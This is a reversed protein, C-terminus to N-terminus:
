DRTQRPDFKNMGEIEKIYEDVSKNLVLRAIGIKERKLDGERPVAM